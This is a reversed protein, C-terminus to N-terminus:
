WLPTAIANTFGGLIYFFSVVSTNTVNWTGQSHWNSNPTMTILSGHSNTVTLVTSGYVGAVASIPAGFTFNANTAYSSGAKSLDVAGATALSNIATLRSPYNGTYPLGAVSYTGIVTINASVPASLTAGNIYVTQANPANIPAIGAASVYSGGNIVVVSNSTVMICNNTASSTASTDVSINNLLLNAHNVLFGTGNPIVIVQHGNFTHAGGTMNFGILYNTNDEQWEHVDFTMSASNTNLNLDFYQYFGAGVGAIGGDQVKQSTFWLQSKAESGPFAIVPNNTSHNWTKGNDLIYIKGGGGVLDYVASASGAEMYSVHCFEQQNTNLSGYWWLCNAVSDTCVLSAAYVNVVDRNALDVPDYFGVCSVNGHTIIRDFHATCQGKYYVFPGGVGIDGVQSDWDILHMSINVDKGGDLVIGTDFLGSDNASSHRIDHGELNFVTNSNGIFLIGSYAEDHTTDRSVDFDGWGYVNNTIATGGILGPTAIDGFLVGPAPGSSYDLKSGPVFYYNVNNSRTLNAENYTGVGSAILDGAHSLGTANSITLSSKTLNGRKATGNNGNVLDVWLTNGTPVSSNTGGTWSRLTAPTVYLYPETGGNVQAQTAPAPPYAQVAAAILWVAVGLCFTIFRTNM